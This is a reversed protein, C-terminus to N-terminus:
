FCLFIATKCGAPACYYLTTCLKSSSTCCFCSRQLIIQYYKTLDFARIHVNHRLVELELNIHKHKTMLNHQGRQSGIPHLWGPEETWPIEWSLVSSHTAMEEELPDEWDLSQVWMEQTTPHNKVVSGGPFGVEEQVM